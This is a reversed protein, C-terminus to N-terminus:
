DIDSILPESAPYSPLDIGELREREDESEGCVHREPGRLLRGLAVIAELRHDLFERRTDPPMQVIRIEAHAREGEEEKCVLTFRCHLHVINIVSGADLKYFGIYHARDSAESFERNNAAWRQRKNRNGNAATRCGYGHVDSLETLQSCDAVSISTHYVGERDRDEKGFALLAEVAFVNLLTFKPYIACRAVDFATM